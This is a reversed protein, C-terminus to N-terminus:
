WLSSPGQGASGTLLVCDQDGDEQGHQDSAENFWKVGQKQGTPIVMARATDHNLIHARFCALVSSCGWGPKTVRVKIKRPGGKV